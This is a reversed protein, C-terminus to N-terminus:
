RNKKADGENPVSKDTAGKGKRPLKLAARMILIDDGNRQSYVISGRSVQQAFANGILTVPGTEATLSCFVVDNTRPTISGPPAFSSISQRMPVCAPGRNLVIGGSVAGIAISDRALLRSTKDSLKTVRVERRWLRDIAVVDGYCIAASDATWVPAKADIWGPIHKSLAIRRVIKGNKVDAIVLDPASGKARKRPYTEVWSLFKGDPSPALYHILRGTSRYLIRSKARGRVNETVGCVKFGKVDSFAAWVTKGDPSYSGATCGTSNKDGLKMHKSRGFQPNKIDWKMEWPEMRHGRDRTTDIEQLFLVRQSDGRWAVGALTMRCYFAPLGRDWVAPSDTMAPKFQGFHLKYKYGPYKRIYIYRNGSPSLRFMRGGMVNSPLLDKDFKLLETRNEIGVTKESTEGALGSLAIALTLGATVIANKM